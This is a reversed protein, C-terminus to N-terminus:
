NTKQLFGKINKLIYRYVLITILGGTSISIFILFSIHKLCYYHYIYKTFFDIKEVNIDLKNITGIKDIFMSYSCNIIYSAVAIYFILQHRKINFKDQLIWKLFISNYKNYMYIVTFFTFANIFLSCRIDKQIIEFIFTKYDPVIFHLKSKINRLHLDKHIHITENFIIENMEDYSFNHNNLYSLAYGQLLIFSGLIFTYGYFFKNNKIKDSYDDEYIHSILISMTTLKNICYYKYSKIFIIIKVDITGQSEEADLEEVV